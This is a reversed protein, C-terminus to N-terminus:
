NLYDYSGNTTTPKTTKGTITTNITTMTTTNIINTTDIETVTTMTTNIINTTEIETVATTQKADLHCLTISVDFQKVQFHIHSRFDVVLMIVMRM